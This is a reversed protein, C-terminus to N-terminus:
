TAARCPQPPHPRTARSSGGHVAHSRCSSLATPVRPEAAGCRYVIRLSHLYEFALAIQAAYFRATDNPFSHVRRLHSFLEGGPVYEFLM